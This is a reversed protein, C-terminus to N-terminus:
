PGEDNPEWLQIRDVKLRGSETVFTLKVMTPRDGGGGCRFNIESVFQGRSEDFRTTGEVMESPQLSLPSRGSMAVFEHPEARRRFDVTTLEKAEDFRGTRLAEVFREAVGRIDSFHRNLDGENLKVRAYREFRRLPEQFVPRLVALIAAVMLLLLVMGRLGLRPRFRGRPRDRDLRMLGVSAAGLWAAYVTLLIRETLGLLTPPGPSLFVTSLSTLFAILSTAAAIALARLIGVARRWRPDHRLARELLIAAVPLAVFALLAANGHILGATSPPKSWNGPPDTPFIGGLLAGLSWVALCWCGVRAGPGDVSQALGATLALSGLGLGILGVTPLWGQAGHVYYSVAEDLPDLGPQLWHLALIAVTFCGIGGLSAIALQGSPWRGSVTSESSPHGSRQKADSM